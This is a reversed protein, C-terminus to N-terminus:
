FDEAVRQAVQAILSKLVPDIKSIDCNQLAGHLAQHASLAAAHSVM